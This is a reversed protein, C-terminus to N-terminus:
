SQYLQLSHKSKKLQPKKEEGKLKNMHDTVDQIVNDVIKLNAPDKDVIRYFYCTSLISEYTKKARRKFFWNSIRGGNLIPKRSRNTLTPGWWRPKKVVKKTKKLASFFDSL